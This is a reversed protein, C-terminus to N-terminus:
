AFAETQLESAQVIVDARITLRRAAERIAEVNPV